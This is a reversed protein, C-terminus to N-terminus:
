SIFTNNGGPNRYNPEVYQGTFGWYGGGKSNNLTTTNWDDV